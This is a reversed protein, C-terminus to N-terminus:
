FHVFEIEFGCSVPVIQVGLPEFADLKDQPEVVRSVSRRLTSGKLLVHFMPTAPKAEMKSGVVVAARVPWPKDLEKAARNEISITPWRQRCHEIDILPGARNCLM